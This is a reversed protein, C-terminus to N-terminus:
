KSVKKCRRGRRVNEAQTVLELHRPNVCKINSCTHDVVLGTLLEGKFAAYSFRNSRVTRKRSARNDGAAVDYVKFTPYGLHHFVGTWEWCGTELNFSVKSLFRRFDRDVRLVGAEDVQGHM